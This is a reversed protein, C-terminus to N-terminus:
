YMGPLGQLARSGSILISNVDMESGVYQNAMQPKDAQQGRATKPPDGEGKSIGTKRGQAWVM